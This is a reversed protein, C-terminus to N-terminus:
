AAMKGLPVLEQVDLETVEPVSQGQQRLYTLHSKLAGRFNDLTEERTRGTAVVSGIEDPTYAGWNNVGQEIIVTLIM